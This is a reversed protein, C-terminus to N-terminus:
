PDLRGEIAPERLTGFLIDSDMRATLNRVVTGLIHRGVKPIHTAVAMELVPLEPLQHISYLFETFADADAPEGLHVAIM